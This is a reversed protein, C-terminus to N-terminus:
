RETIFATAEFVPNVTISGPALFSRDQFMATTDEIPHNEFSPGGYINCKLVYMYQM